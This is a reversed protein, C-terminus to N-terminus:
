FSDYEMLKSKGKKNINNNFNDLVEKFSNIGSMRYIKKLILLKIRKSTKSIYLFTFEIMTYYVLKILKIYSGKSFTNFERLILKPITTNRILAKATMRVSDFKDLLEAINLDELAQIASFAWITEVSYFRPLRESWIISRGRFHMADELKGCHTKNTGMSSGSQPCAGAISIPYDIKYVVDIFHSLIIASYIDPSVGNFLKLGSNHIDSLVETKIIGHYPRPIATYTYEQLGNQMLRILESRTEFKRYKASPRYFNLIGDTKLEPNPYVFYLPYNQVIAKAGKAKFFKLIKIIEPNISDDDGLFIFYEGEIHSLSLQFNQSINMNENSYSYILKHNKIEEGFVIKLSDDESNDQVIIQIENLELSLLHEVTKICYIKRNKTPIIISLLPEMLM